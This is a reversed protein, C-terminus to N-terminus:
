CKLEVLGCIHDCTGGFHRFLDVLGFHWWTWLDVFCTLQDCWRSSGNVIARANGHRHLHARSLQRIRHRRNIRCL